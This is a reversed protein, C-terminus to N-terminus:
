GQLCEELSVMTQNWKDTDLPSWHTQDLKEGRRLAWKVMSHYFFQVVQPDAPGITDKLNIYIEAMGVWKNLTILNKVQPNAKINARVQRALMEGRLTGRLFQSVMVPVEVEEHQLRAGNAMTFPMSNVLERDVVVEIGVGLVEGNTGTAVSLFRREWNHPEINMVLGVIPQNPYVQKVMRGFSRGLVGPITFSVMDKGQQGGITPALRKTMSAKWADLNELGIGRERQFPMFGEKKISCARKYSTYHVLRM